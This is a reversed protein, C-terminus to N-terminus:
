SACPLEVSSSASADLSTDQVGHSKWSSRPSDLLAERLLTLSVLAGDLWLFSEYGLATKITVVRM